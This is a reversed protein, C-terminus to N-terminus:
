QSPSTEIRIRSSRSKSAPFNSPTIQLAIQPVARHRNFFRNTNAMFLPLFLLFFIHAGQGSNRATILDLSARFAYILNVPPTAFYAPRGEEYARMIPLWKGWSAYYSGERVGRKKRDDFVRMAKQSAVLISLGPPAGLGKQSATLVVDLGWDDFLIEESAVSCVADMVILTSPSLKHVLASIAPANSLVGTSTDVHTFTLIKYPKSQLASAITDLPVTAGIPAKLQDVSAGYTSLSKYKTFLIHPHFFFGRVLRCLFRWLLRHAPGPRKRRTRDSQCFGLIIYLKRDFEITTHLFSM